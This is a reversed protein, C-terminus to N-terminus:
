WTQLNQLSHQELVNEFVKGSFPSFMFFIDGDDFEVEQADANVFCVKSLNSQRLANMALTHYEREIEIGICHIDTLLRFVYIVHGLGSGLDYLTETGKINLRDIFEIVASAPTRELHVMGSRNNPIRATEVDIGFILDILLDLNQETYHNAPLHSRRYTTFRDLIARTESHSLEEDILIRRYKEVVSKNKNEIREQLEVAKGSIDYVSYAKKRLERVISIAEMAKKRGLFNEEEFIKESHLYAEIEQEVTQAM